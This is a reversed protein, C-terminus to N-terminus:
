ESPFFPDSGEDSLRHGVPIEMAILELFQLRVAIIKKEIILSLLVRVRNHM